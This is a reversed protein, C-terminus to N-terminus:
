RRSRVSGAGENSYLWVSVALLVDRLRPEGFGWAVVPSALSVLALVVFGSALNLTFVMNLLDDTLSERQILAASTGLDRFLLAFNTVVTAMAFLGFDSPILLRSFIVLSGLQVAARGFQSLAVWRVNSVASARSTDHAGLVSDTRANM